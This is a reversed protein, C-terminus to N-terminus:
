MGHCENALWIEPFISEGEADKYYVPSFSTPRHEWWQCSYDFLQNWTLISRDSEGFCFRLIEGLHVLMRDQWIYDTAPSISKDVLLSDLLSMIAEQRNFSTHIDQRLGSRILTQSVDGTSWHTARLWACDEVTALPSAPDFTLLNVDMGEFLRLIGTLALLEDSEQQIVPATYLSLCRRIYTEYADPDYDSVISLQRAAIALVGNLLCPNRMAISPIDM